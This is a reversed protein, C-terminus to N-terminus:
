RPERILAMKTLSELQTEQYENKDRARQVEVYGRPYIAHNQRQSSYGELLDVRM